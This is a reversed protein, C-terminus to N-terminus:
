RAPAEDLQARAGAMDQQWTARAQKLCANREAAPRKGCANKAEQLAAGIEKQKTRLRATASADVRYWRSPDGSAIESAQKTATAPDVNRDGNQASAAGTALLASALLM